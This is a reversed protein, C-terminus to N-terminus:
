LFTSQRWKSWKQSCYWRIKIFNPVSDCIRTSWNQNHSWIITGVEDVVSVRLSL